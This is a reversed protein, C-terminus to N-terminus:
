CERMSPLCVCVRSFVCACMRGCVTGWTATEEASSALHPEVHGVMVVVCVVILKESQVM